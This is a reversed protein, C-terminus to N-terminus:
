GPRGAPTRRQIDGVLSMVRSFSRSCRCTDSNPDTCGDAHWGKVKVCRFDEPFRRIHEQLTDEVTKASIRYRLERVAVEGTVLRRLDSADALVTRLALLAVTMSHSVEPEAPSGVNKSSRQMKQHWGVLRAMNVFLKLSRPTGGDHAIVGAWIQLATVFDDSDVEMEIPEKTARGKRGLFLGVVAFVVVLTGSRIELAWSHEVVPPTSANDGPVDTPEPPVGDRPPPSPPRNGPNTRPPETVTPQDDPVPVPGPFQWPLLYHRIVAVCIAAILALELIVRWPGQLFSKLRM